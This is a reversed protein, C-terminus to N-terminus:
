NSCVPYLGCDLWSAAMAAFDYLDVRCDAFAAGVGDPGALDFASAYADLCLSKQVAAHSNYMDLVEKQSKPYNYFVLNDIAGSFVKNIVGRTDGAGIPLTYTWPAFQASVALGGATALRQGDMYVASNSGLAYTAVIQHWNGDMIGPAAVQIQSVNNTETRVYFYLQEPSQISVNYCTKTGDNYAGILTVTATGATKVWCSMTGNALGMYSNPYAGQALKIYNGGNLVVASGSVGEAYSVAGATNPDINMATGNFQGRADTLANEFDYQALIGKVYLVAANSQATKGQGNTVVCYYASSDEVVTSSIALTNMAPGSAVLENKSNYWEYLVIPNVGVAEVSFTATEGEFVTVDQPQATIEPFSSETQFSWTLGTVTNPDKATSGKISTDVRWFVLQDTGIALGPAVAPYQTGSVYVPNVFNPEASEVSSDFQNMYVYYGTVNPNPTGGVFPDDGPEWSLYLGTPSQEIAGDAPTPNKAPLPLIGLTVDDIYISTGDITGGDPSGDIASIKIMISATGEPVTFRFVPSQLWANNVLVPAATASDGDFIVLKPESIMAGASNAFKVSLEVRDLPEDMVWGSNTDGRGYLWLSYTQGAAFGSTITQHIMGYGNRAAIKFSYTGRYVVDTKAAYYVTAGTGSYTSWGNPMLPDGSMSEFGPNVVQAIDGYCM